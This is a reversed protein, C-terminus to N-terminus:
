IKKFPHFFNAENDDQLISAITFRQGSDIRKGFFNEFDKIAPVM